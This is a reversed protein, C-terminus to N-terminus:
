YFVKGAEQGFYLPIVWGVRIGFLLDTRETEDKSRTDFNFDRRNMTFGQTFELGAFFNVRRDTSLTQYGIFETFALGNTLRDYGKKYTDDLQPVGSLPDDQIRVKHQLLGAGVTVRLGSRPNAKGIGILKGIHGGAYLGRERLQIDAYGRDNGIIFGEPTRLTAIVDEKVEGGFLYAVDAGIIWNGKATILDVGSGFSFNNGFRDALDGGPRHGSYSLKFLLANGRNLAYESYKQGWLLSPLGCLLLFLLVNRM